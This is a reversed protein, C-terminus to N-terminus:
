NMRCGMRIDDDPIESIYSTQFSANIEAIERKGNIYDEYFVMLDIGSDECGDTEEWQKLLEIREHVTTDKILYSKM